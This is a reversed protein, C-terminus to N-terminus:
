WIFKVAFQIERSPTTTTTLQGVSAVSAGTGDFIDVPTIPPYFNARNLVNFAEARFQINFNESIRKIPTNKVLSFNLNAIGPGIVINRGSNGRLNFCQLPTGVTTDCRQNYFALSPATPVTFCQTKIYNNPNGRNSLTACGPGNLRDPYAFDDSSLTGSPDAGTGWTPTLPVGDNATFILGLQWGGTLLSEVGSASKMGPVDWIGNIVLTRGVDFDSLANNLSMDFWQLSSISNQFSDGELTASSTDISKSWTFSGQVQFGHSMRKQLDLELSNYYSSGPWSLYRIDGWHTNIRTGSGIPVPFLYGAATRTPIVLDSDDVRFPQHVGRSGVYGIMGTLSPTIQHQINLNWQMVYNRKPNFQADVVRLAHPGLLGLAGGPFTGAGPKNAQGLEFFPDGQGAFATIEYCLPLVDFMGFGGRVATKGSRFPDWAFGVRPQFDRNTPNQFYPPGLHLTADNMNILTAIKGQVETPVTAREYRLGLNLTLNPRVRWDDQVYLGMITQRLGRETLTGPFASQFKSPNNTLFSALSGFTFLGAPQTNNLLNEQDREVAAGFKVSHLGKTVFADDYGQFSNWHHITQAASGVGGPMASFGGGIHVIPANRGPVAGLSPDAA